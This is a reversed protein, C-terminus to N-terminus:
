PGASKRHEARLRALAQASSAPLADRHALLRDRDERAQMQRAAARCAMATLRAREAPSLGRYRHAERRVAAADDVVWGPLKVM